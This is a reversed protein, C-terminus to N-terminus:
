EGDELRWFAQYGGGSFLIITPPPIFKKILELSNGDDVDVHLWLVADIDDKKAKRDVVGSKLRNVHFYLNAKGQREAIWDHLDKEQERNFTHAELKGTDPDIAVVHVACDGTFRLLFKAAANSDPERQEDTM